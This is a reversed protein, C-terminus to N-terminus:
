HHRKAGRSAKPQGKFHICSSRAHDGCQINVVIFHSGASPGRGHHEMVPGVRIGARFVVDHAALNLLIYRSFEKLPLQRAQQRHESLNLLTQRHDKNIAVNGQALLRAQAQM